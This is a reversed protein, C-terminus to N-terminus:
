EVETITIKYPIELGTDEKNEFVVEYTKGAEFTFRDYVGEVDYPIPYYIDGQVDPIPFYDDPIDGTDLQANSVLTLDYVGDLLSDFEGSSEPTVGKVTPIQLTPIALNNDQVDPIYLGTETNLTIFGDDTTMAIGYKADPNLNSLYNNEVRLRITAKEEFLFCSSFSVFAILLILITLLKKM